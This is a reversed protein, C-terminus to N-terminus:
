EKTEGPLLWRYQPLHHERHEKWAKLAEIGLKVAKSDPHDKFHDMGVTLTTLRKIAEDIKIKM